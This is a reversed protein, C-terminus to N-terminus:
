DQKEKEPNSVKVDSNMAVTENRTELYRIKELNSRCFWEHKLAKSMTIRKKPDKILLKSILDALSESM